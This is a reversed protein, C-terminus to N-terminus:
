ARRAGQRRHFDIRVHFVQERKAELIEFQNAVFGIRMDLRRHGDSWRSGSATFPVEYHHQGQDDGAGGVAADAAVVLQGPVQGVVQLVELADGEAFGDDHPALGPFGELAWQGAAGVDDDGALGIVDRIAGLDHGGEIVGDAHGLIDGQDVADVFGYYDAAGFDVGLGEFFDRAEVDGFDVGVDVAVGEKGGVCLVSPLLGGTFIKSRFRRVLVVVTENNVIATLKQPSGAKSNHRTSAATHEPAPCATFVDRYARRPWGHGRVAGGRFVGGCAIAETGSSLLPRFFFLSYCFPAHGKFAGSAQKLYQEKSKARQSKRFEVRAGSCTIRSPS